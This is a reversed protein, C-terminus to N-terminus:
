SSLPASTCCQSPTGRLPAACSTAMRLIGSRRTWAFRCVPCCFVSLSSGVSSRAEFEQAVDYSELSHALSKGENYLQVNNVFESSAERVFHDYHKQYEPNRCTMGTSACKRKWASEVKVAEKMIGFPTQGSGKHHKNHGSCLWEVVYNPTDKHLIRCRRLGKKLTEQVM